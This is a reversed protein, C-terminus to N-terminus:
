SEKGKKVMFAGLFTMGIVFIIVLPIWSALGGNSTGLYGMVSVITDNGTGGITNGMTSLLVIGIGIMVALGIIGFGLSTLVNIM